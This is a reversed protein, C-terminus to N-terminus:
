LADLLAIEEPYLAPNQVYPNRIDIAAAMLSMPNKAHGTADCLDSPETIGCLGLLHGFEHALVPAEADPIAVAFLGKFVIISTAGISLGSVGLNPKFLANAYIIHVSLTFIPFSHTNRTQADLAHLETEDWTTKTALTTPITQYVASADKGTYKEVFALFSSVQVKDPGM